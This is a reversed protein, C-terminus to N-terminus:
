PSAARVAAVFDALKRADKVGPAVEVGSAVDVAWPAITSIAAGVNGAHLGGAVVIPIAPYRLRADAALAWDFPSGSGGRAPTPADLLLADAPWADLRDLDRAGGVALAKWIPRKTLHAITALQEPREDGHVQIIDLDVRALVRQIEDVDADVFVGVVQTSPSMARVITALMPARDPAVYRKSREWFNLGIFDVGSAAVSGADDPLTVGCIKIKVTAPSM